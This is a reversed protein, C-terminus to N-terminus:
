PLYVFEKLNFIAHAVDRWAKAEDGKHLATLKAALTDFRDREEASAARGLATEFMAAVRREPSLKLIGSAWFEAQQRVFPDNLLALAQAPVNTVDRAGRAAMPNPYDFIELFKPGEMRTIQTYLSRRGAGDLPGNFLRRYDQPELRAPAISPGYLTRDLRGSVALIQDRVAEASLRRLPYHQLLRNDDKTALETSLRFPESLVMRRLTRKVSWGDAVFQAALHDLLEPHSPAEGERGFNDVTRVLGRGFVHAWLRNVMVRATLPNDTRVITEALERRGSGKAPSPMAPGIKSLFGRAVGPAPEDEGLGDITQPTPLAREAARYQEVLERLRESASASNPLVGAQLMAAIWRVDDDTARDAAWAEVAERVVQRYRELLEAETTVPVAFLRDLHALEEKPSAAGDHLVAGTMGFYSQPAALEAETAKIMGPRDPIRPNDSKTVVEVFEPLAKQAYATSLRVWQPQENDILKYGEGIACNDLVTRRAAFRGGMVRLSVYKKDKALRPSRLAGNARDSVANTHYGRPLVAQLAKEGTLAVAFDGARTQRLGTGTATWGTLEGFGSRNFAARADREERYRQALAAWTASFDATNRLALWPLLPHDFATRGKGKAPLELSASRWLRALEARIAPKLSPDVSAASTDLTHTLARSSNLMGFLARYDAQPIPDLKHDHCRACSVTMGQFAKALTDIQNDVVDLSIERFQICDDHGAEGLRYFATAILSEVVGGAVRPRALLDGAIHERVFQDYPLDANFARILYDRYRWAGVIEYNWEYGRTEGYRVVDMWHRAWHEGFHPSALLRDVAREYSGDKEFAAIEEATPPLGTLVFAARRIWARRSALAAAPRGALAARWYSDISAGPQLARVPRFAWHERAAREYWGPEKPAPASAPWVAGARIWEEIAAADRDSLKAGPPMALGDHRIAKLLWGESPSGPVVAAGRKGGTLLGERSDVRLGSFQKDPGHCSYCNAALVPRVRTEFLDQAALSSAILFLARM